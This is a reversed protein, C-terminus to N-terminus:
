PAPPPPPPADRRPGGAGQRMGPRQPRAGPEAPGDPRQRMGPFPPRAGPEPPGGPGPGDAWAPPGGGFRHRQAQMVWHRLKDEFEAIFLYVKAKQVIGLDASVEEYMGHRARVLEEDTQRLEQLHREVEGHPAEGEIAARLRRTLEARRERLHGLHERFESYRRVLLVTREDDLELERSLRALMVQELLERAHEGIPPSGLRPRDDRSPREPPPQAWATAAALCVAAAFLATWKKM